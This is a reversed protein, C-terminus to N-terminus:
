GRRRGVKENTDLSTSVRQAAHRSKARCSRFHPIILLEVM